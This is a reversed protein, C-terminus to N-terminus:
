GAADQLPGEVDNLAIVGAGVLEAGDVGQVEGGVVLVARDEVEQLLETDEIM